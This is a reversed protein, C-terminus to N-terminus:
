EKKTGDSTEKKCMDFLDDSLFWMQRKIEDQVIDPLNLQSLRTLIKAIHRNTIREREQVYDM